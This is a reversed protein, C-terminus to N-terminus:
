ALRVLENRLYDLSHQLWNQLDASSAPHHAHRDEPPRRWWHAASAFHLRSLKQRSIARRIDGEASPPIFDAMETEDNGRLQELYEAAPDDPEMENISDLADFQWHPHAADSAQFGFDRGNWKAWGAWEARFMQPKDVDNKFGFHVTLASSRFSLKRNRAESAYDWEERYGLWAWFNGALPTIPAVAVRGGRNRLVFECGDGVVAAVLPSREWTVDLRPRASIDSAAALISQVRAFHGRLQQQTMVLAVPANM